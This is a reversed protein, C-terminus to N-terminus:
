GANKTRRGNRQEKRFAADLRKNEEEAKTSFETDLEYKGARQHATQYSMPSSDVLCPKKILSRYFSSRGTKQVDFFQAHRLAMLARKVTALSVGCEHAITEQRIRSLQRKRHIHYAIVLGILKETPMLDASLIAKQLALDM